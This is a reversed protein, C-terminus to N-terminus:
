RARAALAAAFSPVVPLLPLLAAQYAHYADPKGPWTAGSPRNHEDLEHTWSGREHDVLCRDIHSWWQVRREAWREDGTVRLLVEATNVAEAAVWHMRARVVPAGRWDTTYVFGETGDVAWGDAVAREALAVAAGVLGRPAADGLSQAVAVLLRAWELGHGVTAGYPQFPHAPEERHHELLPQWREDFHEPIRWRNAEAWAVVRAATRGARDHWAPDRTVDGAALLAEVTHMNANVGRYADLRTWARDWKDVVLGEADDWFRDGLCALADDLLSRAGDIGAAAASSAALVVFAHGYAQKTDDVAGGGDAAGDVAAYWGGNEPDALSTRLSRVGHEVLRRLESADPGGPVPTEGALLGLAFVHTMRCTIWLEVPRARDVAGTVDLYGFGSACRSGQAFRLLEARQATLYAPGGPTTM